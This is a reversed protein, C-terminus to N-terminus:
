IPHQIEAGLHVVHHSLRTRLLRFRVCIRTAISAKGNGLLLKSMAVKARNHAHWKYISVYDNLDADRHM